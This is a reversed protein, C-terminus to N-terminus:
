VGWRKHAINGLLIFAAACAAAFVLAALNFDGSAAPAASFMPAVLKGGLFGGASGIIISVMMGRQENYGLYSYGIWGLIGGALIWTVIDMQQQRKQATTAREIGAKREHQPGHRGSSRGDPGRQSADVVVTDQANGEKANPPVELGASLPFQVAAAM